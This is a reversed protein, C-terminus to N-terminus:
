EIREPQMALHLKDLIVENIFDKAKKHLFELVDFCNETPVVSSNIFDSDVVFVREPIENITGLGTHIRAFSTKQDNLSYEVDMGSSLLKQENEYASAGLWPQGILENWPTGDLGLNHRSYAEVYRLGIRSFFSPAYIEKLVSLPLRFSDLLQEWRSYSLTSISIFGSTLNIKTKGDVSVFAHNKIPPNEMMPPVPITNKEAMVPIQIAPKDYTLFYSPFISKIRDQFIDPDRNNISFITPFRLQIIVEILPSKGYVVRPRKM